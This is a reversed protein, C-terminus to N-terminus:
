DFALRMRLQGHLHVNDLHDDCALLGAFIMNATMKKAVKTAWFLSPVLSLHDAPLPRQELLLALSKNRRCYADTLGECAHVLSGNERLAAELMARDGRFSSHVSLKELHVASKIFAALAVTEAPRLPDRVRVLALSTMQRPSKSTLKRLLACTIDQGPSIALHVPSLSYLAEALTNLKDLPYGLDKLTLRSILGKRIRPVIRILSDIAGNGFFCDGLDLDIVADRSILGNLLHEVADRNFSIGRLEFSVLPVNSHLLSSWAHGPVLFHHDTVNKSVCFKLKQLTTNQRLIRLPHVWEAVADDDGDLYKAVYLILQTIHVNVALAQVVMLRSEYSLVFGSIDLELEKVSTTKSLLTVMSLEDYVVDLGFNLVRVNTNSGVASLLDNTFLLWAPDRTTRSVAGMDLQVTHLAESTKVYNVLFAWDGSSITTNTAEYCVVSVRLCLSAVTTNLLLASGLSHFCGLPNYLDFSDDDVITVSADNRRVAALTREWKTPTEANELANKKGTLAKVIARSLDLLASWIVGM